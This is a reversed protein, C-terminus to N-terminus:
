SYTFKICLSLFNPRTFVLYQLASVVSIYLEPNYYPQGGDKLLRNNPLCPTVCQKYETMKAKQLIEKIYKKQSLFLRTAFKIM